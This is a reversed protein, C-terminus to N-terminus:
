RPSRTSPDHIGHRPHQHRIDVSCFCFFRSNSDVTRGLYGIALTQSPEFHQM